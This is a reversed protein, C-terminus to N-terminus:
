KRCIVSKSRLGVWMLRVAGVELAIKVHEACLSWIRSRSVAHCSFPVKCALKEVVRRWLCNCSHLGEIGEQAGKKLAAKRHLARRHVMVYSRMWVVGTWIRPWFRPRLMFVALVGACLDEEDWCSLAEEGRAIAVGAREERVEGMGFVEEGAM